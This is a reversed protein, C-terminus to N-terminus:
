RAYYGRRTRLAVGPRNVQVRIQRFKGDFNTNSPSYAMSYITRLEAAVQDFVGKLDEIREATYMRAGSVRALEQLQREATETIRAQNQNAPTTPSAAAGPSSSVYINQNTGALYVPYVLAEAEMVGDLLQDFTM